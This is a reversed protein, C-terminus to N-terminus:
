TNLVTYLVIKSEFLIKSWYNFINGMNNLKHEFIDFDVSRPGPSIAKMIGTGALISRYRDRHNKFEQGPRDRGLERGILIGTGLEVQSQILM